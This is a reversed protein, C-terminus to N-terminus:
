PVYTMGVSLESPKRLTGIDVLVKMSEKKFNKLLNKAFSRAVIKKEAAIMNNKTTRMQLNRRDVEDNKRARAEELRQTEMLEAEKLQYFKKNHKDLEINEFEEIAEIRAHEIAKGVLVQLIPEVENEYDFLDPDGDFIQTAKLEGEPNPIFVAEPAEDIFYDPEIDFENVMNQHDDLEEWLNTTQM